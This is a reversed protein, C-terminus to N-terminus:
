ATPLGGALHPLARRRRSGWDGGWAPITASRTRIPDHYGDAPAGEADDALGFHHHDFAEAAEVADRPGSEVEQHREDVAGACDIDPHEVRIDIAHLAHARARGGADVQALLHQVERALRHDGFVVHGDVDVRHDIIADGIRLLRCVGDLIQRKRELRERARREAVDDALHLEILRETGAVRDVLPHTVHDLFRRDAPADVHRADLQLRDLRRAVDLLRHLQLHPGLALPAGRDRLASAPM